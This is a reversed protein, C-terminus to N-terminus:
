PRMATAIEHHNLIQQVPETVGKIYPLTVIYKSKDINKDMREKTEREQSKHEKVTNITWSPYGCREVAKNIPEVEKERNEPESIISNCRDYPSYIHVRM